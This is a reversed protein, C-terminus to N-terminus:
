FRRKDGKWISPINEQYRDTSINEQNVIDGQEGGRARKGTYIRGFRM